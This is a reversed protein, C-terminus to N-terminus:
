CLLKCRLMCAGERSIVDTAYALKVDCGNHTNRSALPPRTGAARADAAAPSVPLRLQRRVKMEAMGLNMGLCMRVGNGFPMFYAGTTRGDKTLWREPHYEGLPFETSGKWREDLDRMFRGLTLWMKTGQATLRAALMAVM